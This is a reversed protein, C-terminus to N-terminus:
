VTGPRPDPATPTELEFENGQPDLLVGGGSSLAGTTLLDDRGARLTWRWRNATVREDYVRVFKWILEPWGASRYL